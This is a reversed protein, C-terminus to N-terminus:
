VAAQPTGRSHSRPRTQATTWCRATRVSPTRSGPRTRTSPALRYDPSYARFGTRVVLGATVGLETEPSGVVWSGGHFYLITGPRSEGEPEVLLTRLGALDTETTRIGDPVIWRRSFEAYFARMEEASPPPGQTRFQRLMADIKERQQTSM